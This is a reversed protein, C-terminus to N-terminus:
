QKKERRVRRRKLAHKGRMMKGYFHVANLSEAWFSKYLLINTLKPTYNSMNQSCRYYKM